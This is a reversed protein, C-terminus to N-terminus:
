PRSELFTLHRRARYHRLLRFLVTCAGSGRSM